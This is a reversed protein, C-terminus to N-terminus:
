SAAVQNLEAEYYCTQSSNKFVSSDVVELVNGSNEVTDLLKAKFEETTVSKVDLLEIGIEKFSKEIATAYNNKVWDSM